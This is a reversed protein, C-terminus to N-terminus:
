VVSKRDAFIEAISTDKPDEPLPKDDILCSNLGGGGATRSLEYALESGYEELEASWTVGDRRWGIYEDNVGVVGRQGLWRLSYEANLRLLMQDSVQLMPYCQRIYGRTLPRGRSVYVLRRLVDVARDFSADWSGRSLKDLTSKLAYCHDIALLTLGESSFVVDNQLLSRHVVTSRIDPSVQQELKTTVWNSGLGLAKEARKVARGLIALTKAPTPHPIMINLSQCTPQTKFLLCPLAEGGVILHIHIKKRRLDRSVSELARNLEAHTMEIDFGLFTSPSSPEGTSFASIKQGM